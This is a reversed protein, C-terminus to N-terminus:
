GLDFSFLDLGQKRLSQDIAQLDDYGFVSKWQGISGDRVFSQQSPMHPSSHIPAARKKEIERVADKSSLIVAKEISDHDVPLGIFKILCSLVARPNRVLNEYTISFNSESRSSMVSRFSKVYRALLEDRVSLISKEEYRVRHYHYMSIMQDLPNRYLQVVKGGEESGLYGYGHQYVFVSLGYGQLENILNNRHVVVSPDLILDKAYPIFERHMEDYDVGESGSGDLLVLNMYNSLLFRLYNTGSKQVTCLQVSKEILGPFERNIKRIKRKRSIFIKAKSALSWAGKM